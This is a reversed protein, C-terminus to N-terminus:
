SVIQCGNPLLAPYSLNRNLQNGCNTNIDVEAGGGVPKVVDKDYFFFARPLTVCDPHNSAGNKLAVDLAQVSDQPLAGQAKGRCFGVLTNVLACCQWSYTINVAFGVFLARM